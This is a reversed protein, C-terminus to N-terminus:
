DDRLKDQDDSTRDANKRSEQTPGWQRDGPNFVDAGDNSILLAPVISDSGFRDRIHGITTDFLGESELHSEGSLQLQEVDAKVQLNSISLGILRVGSDLDLSSVHGSVAEQIIAATNTAEGLTVSRTITRFDGFRIKLTVTKGSLGERRLRDSVAGAIRVVQRHVASSSHLDESFTQEHGLSKAERWPEVARFDQNRALEFFHRASAPGLEYELSEFSLKALDAVTCVGIAELKTGTVRGVGWLARVPHRHLFDLEDKPEIALVGPGSVVGTETAVPKAAESALKAIQKTSGAGISATLSLEDAIDSRIRRGIDSPGGFLRISGTVDLFAEDLGIGEVFPTYRGLIEHLKTSVSEYKSYDGALFIANPCLRKAQVSPMASRVGKTRALYNCSAVVGREANGGVIVPLNRLDPRELLEVSAFFADM